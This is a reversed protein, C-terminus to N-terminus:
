LIREEFGRVEMISYGLKNLIEESMAIARRTVRGWLVIPPWWSRGTAKMYYKNMYKVFDEAKAKDIGRSALVPALDKSNLALGTSSSIALNIMNYLSIFDEKRLEAGKSLLRESFGAYGYWDVEKVDEIPRDAIIRERMPNLVVVLLIAFLLILERLYNIRLLEAVISNVIKVLPPLWTSPHLIEAVLSVVLNVPDILAIEEASAGGIVSRADIAETKSAELLVTCGKCMYDILSRTFNVYRRENRLVQNLFISGDGIVVARGEMYAYMRQPSGASIESAIPTAAWGGILYAPKDLLLIYEGWPANFYAFASSMSLAGIRISINLAELVANSHGTEDAVLIRSYPCGALRSIAILEEITYEMEPSVIFILMDGCEVEIKTWDTVLIVTRNERLIKYLESLGLPGNNVPNAGLFLPIKLPGREMAGVLGILLLSIIIIGPVLKIRM